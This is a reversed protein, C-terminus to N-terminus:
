PQRDYLTMNNLSATSADAGKTTVTRTKGDAALVIRGTMVVKGGKKSAFDMTRDDVKTYSRADHDAAGTVPYDNGDFKGTWETHVDKGDGGVGVVTIKVMDGVAAYTVTHYRPAGKAFKSKAENLKWIGMNADAALCLSLGAFVGVLCVLITRTRM